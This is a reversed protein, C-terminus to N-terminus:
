FLGGDEPPSWGRKSLLVMPTKACGVSRGLGGGMAQMGKGDGILIVICTLFQNQVLVVDEEVDRVEQNLNASIDLSRLFAQEDGGDMCFWSAWLKGKSAYKAGEWVNVWVDARTSSAKWLSTVDVAIVVIAVGSPTPTERYSPGYMNCEACNVAFAFPCSGYQPRHYVKCHNSPSLLAHDTASRDKPGTTHLPPANAFPGTPLSAHQM